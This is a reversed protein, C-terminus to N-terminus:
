VVVWLYNDVIYFFLNLLGVLLVGINKRSFDELAFTFVVPSLGTLDKVM